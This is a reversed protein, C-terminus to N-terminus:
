VVAVGIRIATNDLTVGAFRQALYYQIQGKATIQDEIDVAGTKSAIEIAESVAGVIISDEPLEQLLVVKYGKWMLPNQNHNIADGTSDANFSFENFWNNSTMYIVVQESYETPVQAILGSLFRSKAATDAGFSGAIGSKTIMYTNDNRIDDALLSEAYAGVRDIKQNTIGYVSSNILNNQMKLAQSRVMAMKMTDPVHVKSDSIIEHSVPLLTEIKEFPATTTVLVPDSSITPATGETGDEVTSLQKIVPRFYQAEDTPVMEVISLLNTLGFAKSVTEATIIDQQIGGAM